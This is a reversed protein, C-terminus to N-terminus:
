TCNVINNVASDNDQCWYYLFRRTIPNLHFVLEDTVDFVQRASGTVVSKLVCAFHVRRAGNLYM